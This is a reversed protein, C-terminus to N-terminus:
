KVSLKTKLRNVDPKEQLIVKMHYKKKKFIEDFCTQGFVFVKTETRTAESGRTPM